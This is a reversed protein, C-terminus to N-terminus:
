LSTFHCLVMCLVAVKTVCDTGRNRCVDLLAYLRVRPGRSEIVPSWIIMLM